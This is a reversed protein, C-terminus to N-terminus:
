FKSLIIYFMSKLKIWVHCLQYAALNCTLHEKVLSFQFLSTISFVLCSFIRLVYASLSKMAHLLDTVREGSDDEVNSSASGALDVLSLKSYLNEGTILNDYYIHVTIVRLFSILIRLLFSSLLICSFMSTEQLGVYNM